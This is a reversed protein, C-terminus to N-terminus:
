DVGMSMELPDQKSPNVQTSHVTSHQQASGIPATQVGESITFRQSVARHINPESLHQKM